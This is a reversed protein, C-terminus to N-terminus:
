ETLSFYAMVMILGLIAIFHYVTITFVEWVFLPFKEVHLVQLIGGLILFSFFFFGISGVVVDMITNGQRNIVSRVILVTILFFIFLAGIWMMLIMPVLFTQTIHANYGIGLDAVKNMAVDWLFISISLLVILFADWRQKKWDLVINPLKRM